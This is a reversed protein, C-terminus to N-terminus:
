YRGKPCATTLPTRGEVGRYVGEGENRMPNPMRRILIRQKNEDIKMANGVGVSKRSFDNKLCPLAGVLKFVRNSSTQHTILKLQNLNAQM